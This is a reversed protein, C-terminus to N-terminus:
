RRAIKIDDVTKLDQDRPGRVRVRSPHRPVSSVDSPVFRQIAPIEAIKSKMIEASDTVSTWMAGLGAILFALGAFFTFPGVIDDLLSRNKDHVFEGYLMSCGIVACVMGGWFGM